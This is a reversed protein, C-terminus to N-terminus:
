DATAHSTRDVLEQITAVAEKIIPTYADLFNIAIPALPQIYPYAKSEQIYDRSISFEFSNAVWLVLSLMIGIKLVGLISGAISDLPGLITFDLTKKVLIALGRIILVVVTFIILFAVFPLMFTLNEVKTALIETGWDMLQFAMVIAVFFAFISLLGIFLGQKYGSYAGIALIILIIIDLTAM